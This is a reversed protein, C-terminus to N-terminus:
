LHFAVNNAKAENRSARTQDNRDGGCGRERKQTQVKQIEGGSNGSVRREEM